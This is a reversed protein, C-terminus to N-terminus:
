DKGEKIYYGEGANKYLPGFYTNGVFKDGADINTKFM